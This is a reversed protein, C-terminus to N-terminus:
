GLESRKIQVEDSSNSEKQDIGFMIGPMNYEVVISPFIVHPADDSAFEAKCVGSGDDAYEITYKLTMSATPVDVRESAQAKCAYACSGAGEAGESSDKQDMTGPMQPNDDISPCVAYPADDGAFGDECMGSGSACVLLAPWLDVSIQVVCPGVTDSRRRDGLKREQHEWMDRNIVVLPFVFWCCM